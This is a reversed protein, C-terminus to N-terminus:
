KVQYLVASDAVCCPTHYYHPAWAIPQLLPDSSLIAGWQASRRRVLQTWPANWDGPPRTIPRLYLLRQGPRLSALLPALTSEPNAHRLRSLADVWNMYRPDTLRGLTNAYRLGNPLYYWALPVQEPQGSIVLDGPRLLPGLEGAVDRMDSKYPPSYLSVHLAFAAALAVAIWGVIGARSCGWAALLLMGALVPAFYRAVFAPTVQSALWAVVLTAVPVAILAWLLTAERTRRYRRAVFPALGVVTALLLPFTIRDGGL